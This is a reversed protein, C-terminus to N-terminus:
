ATAWGSFFLSGNPVYQADDFLDAVVDIAHATSLDPDVSADSVAERTIEVALMAVQRANDLQVVLGGNEHRVDLEQGMADLGVTLWTAPITKANM